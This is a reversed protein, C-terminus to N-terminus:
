VNKINRLITNIYNQFGAGGIDEPLSKLETIRFLLDEYLVTADTVGDGSAIKELGSNSRLGRFLAAYDYDVSREAASEWDIIYIRDTGNEVWINGPQFDGHSLGVSVNGDASSIRSFLIQELKLIKDADVRDDSLVNSAHFEKRLADAYYQYSVTHVCRDFSQWIEYARLVYGEYGDSIRALPRGDIISETYESEGYSIMPLLFPASFKTRFDIERKITDTPFSDKPVVRVTKSSFDFIRIKKNCPYILVGDSVTDNVTCKGGSLLGRSNIVVKTYMRTLFCKVASSSGSYETYIYRKVDDSPTRTTIANLHPYIYMVTKGDGDFSKDLTRQNITYFDERKQMYSIKM